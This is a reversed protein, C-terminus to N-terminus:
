CMNMDFPVLIALFPWTILNLPVLRAQFPWTIMDFPVLRAQLAWAVGSFLSYISLRLGSGGRGGGGGGRFKTLTPIILVLLFICNTLWEQEAQLFFCQTSMRVANKSCVKGM